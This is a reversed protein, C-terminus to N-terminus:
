EEIAAAGVIFRSKDNVLSIKYPEITKGFKDKIILIDPRIIHKENVQLIVAVEGTNLKVNSGVPYISLNQLFTKVINEDFHTKAGSIIIKMAEYPLMAKRYIRDTTLADYVDAVAVIRSYYNIKEGKLGFPYGTGNYKEHHQAAILKAAESIDSKEEILKYTYVPHLKMVKFEDDTLKGPKNLIHLPIKIKGVDHMLAGIGLQKIQEKKLKLRTAIFISVTAVNVSHTYTYDDFDKINLLNIAANENEVINEIINVVAEEIEEGNIEQGLTADRMVNEMVNIARQQTEESLIKQMYKSTKPPLYKEDGRMFFINKEADISSLNHHTNEEFYKKIKQVDNETLKKGKRIIVNGTNSDIITKGIVMGAKIDKIKLTLVKESM